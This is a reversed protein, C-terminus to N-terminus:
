QQGQRQALAQNAANVLGPSVAISKTSAAPLAGPQMITYAPSLYKQALANRFALDSNSKVSGVVGGAIGKGFAIAAHPLGHVGAILHPAAEMAANALSSEEGFNQAQATVSNVNPMARSAFLAMAKETQATQAIQGAADPGFVIGLKAQVGPALLKSPTLTGKNVALDHLDAAFGQQIAQQDAPTKAADWLAQVDAPTQKATGGFLLGRSANFAGQPAKYSAAAAQADAFGPIATGLEDGIDTAAGTMQRNAYSPLPAGTIPNREVGDALQQRVALWTAATPVMPPPADPNNPDPAVSTDPVLPGAGTKRTVAAVRSLAAQVNPDTDLLNQLGPTMVPAPDARIASYAPNVSDQGAAVAGEMGSRADAPVIGTAGSFADLLRGTQGAQRAGLIDTALDGAVGPKRSLGAMMGTGNQGLLEAVTQVGNEVPAQVGALPPAGPAPVVGSKTAQAGLYQAARAQASAELSGPAFVNRAVNLGGKAVGGLALFAPGIAAGEVAGTLAGGGPNDPNAGAGYAAGTGAGVATTAAVKSFTGPALGVGKGLAWSVPLSGVINAVTSIVPHATSFQHEAANTADRTAAYAQGPTPQAPSSSLLNTVYQRAAAIGGAVPAAQGLLAGNALAVAAQGGPTAILTGDAQTRAQQYRASQAPASAAAAPPAAQGFQDFPNAAGSGAADTAQSAAGGDFQDFPNAPAAPAQQAM